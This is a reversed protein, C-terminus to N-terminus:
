YGEVYASVFGHCLLSAVYACAYFYSNSSMRFNYAWDLDDWGEGGATVDVLTDDDFPTGYNSFDVMYYRDGRREGLEIIIRLELPECVCRSFLEFVRTALTENNLTASNEICFTRM